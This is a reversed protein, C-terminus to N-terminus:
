GAETGKSVFFGKPLDLCSAAVGAARLLTSSNLTDECRM